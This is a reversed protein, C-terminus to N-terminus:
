MRMSPLSDGASKSQAGHLLVLLLGGLIALNKMFLVAQLDRGSTELFWFQHMLVTTPILFLILLAAGLKEKFGLLLLLGGILELLTAAMLLLPTWPSLSAFCNQAMESFGMYSEWECLAGALTKETEHWNIIKDIAGALFVASLLFRAVVVTCLRVIRM